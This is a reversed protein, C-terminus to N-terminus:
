SSFIFCLPILSEKPPRLVTRSYSSLYVDCTTTYVMNGTGKEEPVSDAQCIGVGRPGSAQLEQECFDQSSLGFLGIDPDKGVVPGHCLWPLRSKSTDEPLQLENHSWWSTAMWSFFKM